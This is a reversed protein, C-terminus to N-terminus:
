IYRRLLLMHFSINLIWSTFRIKMLKLMYLYLPSAFSLVAASKPPPETKWRLWAHQCEDWWSMQQTLPSATATHTCESYSQINVNTNHQRVWTWQTKLNKQVMLMHLKWFVQSTKKFTDMNLLRGLVTLRNVKKNLLHTFPSFKNEM